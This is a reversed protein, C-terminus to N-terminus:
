IYGVMKYVVYGIMEHWVLYFYALADESPFLKDFWLISNEQLYHGPWPVVTIGEKNFCGISRRMHFASTIVVCKNTKFQEKLIKATNIANQRTNLSLSDQIIDAAAVGSDILYQRIGENESNNVKSGRLSGEGGSIIIKKIRGRKYLEFAQLARDGSKSFWIYKSPRHYSKIIGGTLVVGVEYTSERDLPKLEWWKLLENVLIPNSVLYLGVLTSILVKRSRARNKTLIAYLFAMCVMTLPMLFVDITKSLIYFM